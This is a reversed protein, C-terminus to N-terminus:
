ASCRGRLGRGGAHRPLGAQDRRLGDGARVRAAGQGPSAAATRPPAAAALVGAPLMVVRGFVSRDEIHAHAKAADALAYKKDIVVRLERRAVREICEAIVAYTREYENALSTMLSMGLLSANKGWLPLPNFPTLDRGAV